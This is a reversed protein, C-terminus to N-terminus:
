SMSGDSGGKRREVVARWEGELSSYRVEDCWEGNIWLAERDRGGLRFGLREWLRMAGTNYDASQLGIRHLGAIQFGWNLIWRVAESGYGLGRHESAILIGIDLTRHHHTGKTMGHLNIFGIPSSKSNKAGGRNPVKQSGIEEDDEGNGGDSVPICILVNILCNPEKAAHYADFASRSIPQCLENYKNQYLSQPDLWLSHM